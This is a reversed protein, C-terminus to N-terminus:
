HRKNNQAGLDFAEGQPSAGGTPPPSTYFVCTNTQIIVVEDSKSNCVVKGELPLSKRARGLSFTPALLARGSHTAGM